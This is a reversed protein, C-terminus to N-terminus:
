ISDTYSTRRQFLIDFCSFLTLLGNSLYNLVVANLRTELLGNRLMKEATTMKNQQGLHDKSSDAVLMKM